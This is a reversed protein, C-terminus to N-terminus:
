ALTIIATGDEFGDATVRLKVKTGREKEDTPATYTAKGAAGSTIIGHAPEEISWQLAPLPVGPSQNTATVSLEVKGGLPVEDKPSAAVVLAPKAGSKQIAKSVLYSSGSIGLLTLIETPFKEPWMPTKQGVVIVFLSLGIVYTFILLQFRAMSADGNEESVLKALNITNDSIKGLLKLSVGAVFMLLVLGALFGLIQYPHDFVFGWGIKQASDM